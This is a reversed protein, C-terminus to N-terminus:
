LEIGASERPRQGELVPVAPSRVQLLDSMDSWDSLADPLPPM